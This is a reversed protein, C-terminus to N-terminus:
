SAVAQARVAREHRLWGLLDALDSVAADMAAGASFYTEAPALMIPGPQLDADVPVAVEVIGLRLACRAAGADMADQDSWRWRAPLPRSVLVPRELRRTPPLGELARRLDTAEAELEALEVAQADLRALWTSTDAPAAPRALAPASM